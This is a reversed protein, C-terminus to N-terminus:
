LLEQPRVGLQAELVPLSLIPDTRAEETADESAARQELRRGSSPVVAPRLATACTACFLGLLVLKAPRDWM